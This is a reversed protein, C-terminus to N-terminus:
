DQNFKEKDKLFEKSSNNTLKSLKVLKKRLHMSLSKSKRKKLKCNDFWIEWKNNNNSPKVTWGKMNNKLMKNADKKKISSKKMNLINKEQMNRWEWVRVNKKKFSNASLKYVQNTLDPTKLNDSEEWLTKVKGSWRIWYDTLKTKKDKFIKPKNFTAKNNRDCLNLKM